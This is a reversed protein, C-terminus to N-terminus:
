SQFATKSTELMFCRRATSLLMSRLKTASFSTRTGRHPCVPVVRNRPRTPPSPPLGRWSQSKSLLWQLENLLIGCNFPDVSQSVGATYTPVPNASYQLHCGNRSSEVPCDLPERADWRCTTVIAARTSTVRSTITLTGSTITLAGRPTHAFAKAPNEVLDGQGDLASTKVILQSRSPEIPPNILSGKFCNRSSADYVYCVSAGKAHNVYGSHSSQQTSAAWREM